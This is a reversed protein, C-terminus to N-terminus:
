EVDKTTPLQDTTGMNAFIRANALCQKATIPLNDKMAREAEKLYYARWEENTVPDKEM